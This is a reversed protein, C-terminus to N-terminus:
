PMVTIVVDTATLTKSEGCVNSKEGQTSRRRLTGASTHIVNIMHGFTSTMKLLLSMVNVEKAYDYSVLKRFLIKALCAKISKIAKIVLAYIICLNTVHIHSNLNTEIKNYQSCFTLNLKVGKKM